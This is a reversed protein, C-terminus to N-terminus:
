HINWKIFIVVYLCLKQFFYFFTGRPFISGLIYLSKWCSNLLFRESFQGTIFEDICILRTLSCSIPHWMQYLFHISIQMATASNKAFSLASDYIHLVDNHSIYSIIEYDHSVYRMIILYFFVVVDGTFSWMNGHHAENELFCERNWGVHQLFRHCWQQNLKMEVNPPYFAIMTVGTDQLWILM